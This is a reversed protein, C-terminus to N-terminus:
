ISEITVNKLEVDKPADGNVRVWVYSKKEYLQKDLMYAKPSNDKIDLVKTFNGNNEYDIEAILKVKKDTTDKCTFRVTYQKGNELKRSLTKSGLNEYENHYLERQTKVSDLRVMLQYGGFRNEHPDPENHRSRMKLSLDDNLTPNPVYKVTMTANYNHAHIYIRSRPGSLFARGDGKIEFKRLASEGAAVELKPDLLDFEHHKTITRPKGNNWLESTWAADQVTPGVDITARELEVGIKKFKVAKDIAKIWSQDAKRVTIATAGDDSIRELYVTDVNEFKPASQQDQENTIKLSLTQKSDFEIGIKKFRVASDIAKTWSDDPKRLTIETAGDASAKKLFVTDVNEFKPASQQGQEDTVRVVLNTGVSVM